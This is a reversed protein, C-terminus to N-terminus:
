MMSVEAREDMREDMWEGMLGDVWGGMWGNGGWWGRQVLGGPLLILAWEEEPLVFLM